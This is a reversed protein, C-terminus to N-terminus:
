QALPIGRLTPLRLLTVLKNEIQVWRLVKAAPLVKELKKAYKKVLADEDATLKFWDKLLSKAADDTMSDYNAAFANVLDVGHQMLKRREAQYEDYVPTFKQMQTDDLEMSKLMVARKDSQVQAILQQTDDYGSQAHTPLPSALAVCAAIVAFFRNRHQM